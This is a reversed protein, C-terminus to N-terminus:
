LQPSFLTIVAAFATLLLRNTNLKGGCGGTKQQSTPPGGSSPSPVAAAPGGAVPGAANEGLQYFVQADPSNPPLNLLAPCQSINAPANCIHPLSLALTVNINLGLDPDNRDKIVVCLCKKNTKLLQKLGNCCDPTPSKATGGVYPLCTALGVLSQACAEKDKSTDCVSLTFLMLTSALLFCSKLTIAKSINM